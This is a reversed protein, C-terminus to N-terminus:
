SSVKELIWRETDSGLSYVKYVGNNEGEDTVSIYDSEKVNFPLVGKGTLMNDIKDYAPLKSVTLAITYSPTPPKKSKNSSSYSSGFSDFEMDGGDEEEDMDCMMACEQGSSRSSFGKSIMASQPMAYSRSMSKPMSMSATSLCCSENFSEYSKNKKPLQLPIEVVKCQQTVKDVEERVEVAVFSTYNSLIGTNLSVETIEKKNPDSKLHEIQSGGPNNNLENILKNGAMRHLPYSDDNFTELSINTNLAYDPFTQAYTISNLPDQSFVYFTNLDNEYMPPLVSPITKYPGFAGIQVSNMEHCRSISQQAKKLQNHMKKIIEDTNSSVFEAKGNSADAIGQILQQSVNSGIGITFVTTHKNAKVLKLVVDTDSIGGDSLLLVVGRKGTQKITKYVTKMVENLETGGNADITNVWAVAEKIKDMGSFLVKSNESKTEVKLEEPFDCNCSWLRSNVTFGVDSPTNKVFTNYCEECYTCESTSKGAPSYWKRDDSVRSRKPCEKGSDGFKSFSDNFKFVDFSSEEPLALLLLKAGQKCFEMDKGQMSGSHDMLIVYHVDKPNVQPINDFQPVINVMTAFRFMENSLPLDTKQMLCCSKPTNRKITLIVDDTLSELEAIQFSLSREKMNSLNIKCSKSNLSEIGDQMVINGFISLDYPKESVKTPNVLSGQLQNKTNPSIYKPMITMPINIRLQSADIETKLEICYKITLELNAKPPVNGLSVSFIDGDIREMLYAGNGSSIAKNYEERAEEKDKLNAKVVKNGIKACFDYVSAGAPTPFTYYAEIPDEDNNEYFQHIKFQAVHNLVDVNIEVKKLPIETNKSTRVCIKVM